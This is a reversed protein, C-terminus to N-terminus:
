EYGNGAVGKPVNFEPTIDEGNLWKMFLNRMRKSPIYVYIDEENRIASRWIFQIMESVAWLGQDVKINYHAFFKTVQPRLYRNITYAVCKRDAYDNTARINCSLFSKTYRKNALTAQNDKFTTWILEKSKVKLINRFYNDLNNTLVKISDKNKKNEYWSKSLNTDNKCGEGIKNLKGEYINIKSKLMTRIQLERSHDQGKKFQYYPEGFGKIEVTWKEYSIQHLDFYYKQVQGDFLYTLIYVEDFAKFVDSPFTWILSTGSYQMLSNNNAMHKIEEFKGDYCGYDKNNWHIFDNEDITIMNQELLIKQDAKKLPIDSIVDMVEDLILAYGYEKIWKTMEINISKFLAHTSAINKGDQLLQILSDMKYSFEGKENYNEPSYFYQDPCNVKIREIETLYPTIFIYRTDKNENIMNIAASTKGSGMMTDVIKIKKM